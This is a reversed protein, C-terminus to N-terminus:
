NGEIARTCLAVDQPRCTLVVVANSRVIFEWKAHSGQTAKRLRDAIQARRAGANAVAIHVNTLYGSAHLAQYLEEDKDLYRQERAPLRLLKSLSTPLHREVFVLRAYSGVHRQWQQYRAEDSAPKKPTSLAWFVPVALSIVALVQLPRRSM